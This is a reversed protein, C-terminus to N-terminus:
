KSTQVARRDERGITFLTEMLITEKSDVHQFQFEDHLQLQAVERHPGALSM